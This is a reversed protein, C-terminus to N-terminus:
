VESSQQRRTMFFEKLMRSSEEEGPGFLIEPVHNLARNGCVSLVTGCAGYRSDRAGIVVKELRAHVIAGACMACPEKTVYLVCGTLRENELARAAEEIAEIEAHRTPVGSRRTRNGRRALVKGQRVIVAGVPVEEEDGARRAEELALAMAEHDTM